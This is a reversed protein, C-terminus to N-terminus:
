AGESAEAAAGDEAAEIEAALREWDRYRGDVADRLRVREAELNTRAEADHRARATEMAKRQVETLTTRMQDPTLAPDKGALADRVGRALMEADIDIGQRHFDSGVQYGISYGLREKEDSPAAAPPEQSCATLPLSSLSLVTFLTPLAVRYM